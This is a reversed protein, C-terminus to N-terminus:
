DLTKWYKKFVKIILFAPLYLPIMWMFFDKKTRAMRDDADVALEWAFFGLLQLIYMSIVITMIGEM